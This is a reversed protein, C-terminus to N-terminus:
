KIFPFFQYVFTLTLGVLIFSVKNPNQIKVIQKISNSKNAELQDGSPLM